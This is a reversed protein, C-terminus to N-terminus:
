KGHCKKYKKGSGCWCPDNRGPTKGGAEHKLSEHELDSSENTVQLKPSAAQPQSTMSVKFILHAIQSKIVGDLREFLHQAEIKDAVLTLALLAKEPPYHQLELLSSVVTATNEVEPEVHKAHRPFLALLGM